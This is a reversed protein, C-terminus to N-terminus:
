ETIPNFEINKDLWHLFEIEDTILPLKQFKKKFDDSLAHGFMKFALPKKDQLAFLRLLIMKVGYYETFDCYKLALKGLLDSKKQEYESLEYNDM